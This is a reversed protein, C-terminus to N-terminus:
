RVETSVVTVERVFNDGFPFLTQGGAHWLHVMTTRMVCLEGSLLARSSPNVTGLDLRKSGLERVHKRTPLPPIRM